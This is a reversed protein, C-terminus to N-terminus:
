FSSKLRLHDLRNISKIEIRQKENDKFVDLPIVTGAGGQAYLKRYFDPLHSVPEGNVGLILDGRKLGAREAPGEPTVSSVMLHGHMEDTSVGLWPRVAGSIRGNVMLDALISPLLDTPVFMNGPMRDGKGSADAVILSGIGVLKGEHNLLAAGSWAPHPPATFIAQDLLYEWSGAFERKAVVVAPAANDAGGFPAVVVADREKLDASKGFALPQVKLPATAQLLGFGTQNDYGVVNAPVDHGDNTTVEAAHAEVMLYGITLILGNSDIVVASGERERGLNQTTRGDPNIFTKMHVVGSLLETLAPSQAHATPAATLAFLAVLAVSPLGGAPSLRQRSQIRM